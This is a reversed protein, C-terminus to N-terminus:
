KAALNPIFITKDFDILSKTADIQKIDWDYAGCTTLGNDSIVAEDTWLFDMAKDKITYVLAPSGFISKVITM